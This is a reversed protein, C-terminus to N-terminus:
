PGLEVAFEHAWSWPSEPGKFNGHPPAGSIATPSPRRFRRPAQGRVKNERPANRHGLPGPLVPPVRTYGGPHPLPQVKHTRTRGRPTGIGWAAWASASPSPHIQRQTPTARGQTYRTRGRPTGIGWAAWALGSFSPHIQRQAPTAPGQTYRTRTRPTGIGWSAWAPGSPSPHIRRQTPNDPGQKDEKM